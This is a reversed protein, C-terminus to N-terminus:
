LLSHGNKEQTDQREYYVLKAQGKPIIFLKLGQEAASAKEIIGGVQGISRDENITGTIAADTRVQKGQIAAIVAITMAAGASPGGILGAPSEKIEFIVDRNALSTSTVLEAVKVATEASFQTDPEVFPNLKFLVRGQGDTIEIVAKSTVGKEGSSAVAVINTEATHKGTELVNGTNGAQLPVPELVIIATLFGALFIIIGVIIPANRNEKM